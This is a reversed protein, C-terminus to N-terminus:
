KKVAEFCIAGNHREKIDISLFIEAVTSNDVGSNHIEKFGALKLAHKLGHNDYLSHHNNKRRIYLKLWRWLNGTYPIDFFFSNKLFIKGALASNTESNELYDQILKQLDPTIIRITGGEKLVRFCEKLFFEGEEFTLHEILHSTYIYDVSASEFKFSDTLNMNVVGKPWRKIFKLNGTFPVYQLLKSLQGMPSSDINVWGEPCHDGCGLNLKLKETM